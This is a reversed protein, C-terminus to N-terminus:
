ETVLAKLAGNDPSQRKFDINLDGSIITDDTGHRYILQEPENLVDIYEFSNTDEMQNDYPAYLNIM